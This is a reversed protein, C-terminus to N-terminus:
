FIEEGSLIVITLIVGLVTVIGFFNVWIRIISSHSETKKIYRYIGEKLERDTLEEIKKM